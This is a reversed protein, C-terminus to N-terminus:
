FAYAMITQGAWGSARWGQRRHRLQETGQQAEVGATLMPWFVDAFRVQEQQAIEIDINRLKCLNVNLGRGHRQREQGLRSKASVGPSGQVVRVGNAQVGQYNRDFQGTLIVIREEYPRYEHDNMWLLQPSQLGSARCDNTM